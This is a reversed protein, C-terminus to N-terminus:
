NSLLQYVGIEKDNVGSPKSWSAATAWEADTPGADSAPTGGWTTGNVHVIYAYSEVIEDRNTAAAFQMGVKLQQQLMLTMAGPKFLLTSYLPNTDSTPAWLDSVIVRMRGYFPVRQTGGQGDNIYQYSAKSGNEKELDGWIKSHAVMLAVQTYNDGAKVLTDVIGNFTAFVKPGSAAGVANRHTTRLAGSSSDFLGKLVNIASTEITKPWYYTAQRAIEDNVANEDGRGLASKLGEDVGRYRRRRTVAGVQRYSSIKQITAASGDDLVAATTDEVFKRIQVTAGGQEALGSPDVVMAGSGVFPLVDPLAAEMYASVAQPKYVDGLATSAM